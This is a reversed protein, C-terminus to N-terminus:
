DQHTEQVLCNQVERKYLHVLVRWGQRYHFSRLADDLVESGEELLADLLFAQVDLDVVLEM